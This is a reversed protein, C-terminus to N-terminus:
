VAKLWTTRIETSARLGRRLGFCAMSRADPASPRAGFTLSDVEEDTESWPSAEALGEAVVYRSSPRLEGARASSCAPARALDAGVFEYLPPLHPPVRADVRAIPPCAENVHWYGTHQDDRAGVPASVRVQITFGAGRLAPM